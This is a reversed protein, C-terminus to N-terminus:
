FLLFLYKRYFLQCVSQFLPTQVAMGQDKTDKQLNTLNKITEAVAESIKEKNEEIWNLSFAELEIRKRDL